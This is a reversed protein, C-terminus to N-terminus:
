LAPSLLRCANSCLKTFFNLRINSEKWHYSHRFDQILMKEIHSVGETSKCLLTLEYNLCLSREDINATGISFFDNDALAIKEHLFGRTYLSVQIGAATLEPLYTLMALHAALNDGRRPILIRVDVGRLSAACLAAHVAENPVLYPSALWLRHQAHAALEQLTLQWANIPANDPGSPILQCETNGAPAPHGTLLPTIDEANARQWDEAFSLTCQNVVPGQLRVFTDRWYPANRRAVYELGINLSGLYAIECDVIVLKRHNRYNLRLISSLWFRRGNFSAVHVGAKRLAKLYGYPLKHSGIEDYIMYVRVGARAREELVERLINGVLDNRIIFFEILISRRASQMQELMSAYTQEGDQLIEPHNGSCPAYGCVDHLTRQIGEADRTFPQLPALLRHVSEPPLSHGIHRRIRGAGLAIYLPICVYPLLNLGLLWAITGQPSRRQMLAHLSFCLGVVHPLVLLIKLIHPSMGSM